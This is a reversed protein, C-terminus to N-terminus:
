LWRNRPFFPRPAETEADVEGVVFLTATARTCLKGSSDIIRVEVIQLTRGDHVVLASISIRDNISVTGVFHIDVSQTVNMKGMSYGAMCAAVDVLQMLFGGHAKGHLNTAGDPVTVENVVYGPELTENEVAEFGRLDSLHNLCGEQIQKEM